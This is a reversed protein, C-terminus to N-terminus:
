RTEGLRSCTLHLFLIFVYVLGFLRGMKENLSVHACRQKQLSNLKNRRSYSNEELTRESTLSM